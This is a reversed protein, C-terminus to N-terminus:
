STIRTISGTPRTRASPGIHLHMHPGRRRFDLPTGTRFGAHDVSFIRLPQNVRSSMRELVRTRLTRDKTLARYNKSAMYPNRNIDYGVNM